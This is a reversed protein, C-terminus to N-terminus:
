RKFPRPHTKLRPNAITHFLIIVEKLHAPEETNEWVNQLYDKPNEVTLTFAQKNHIDKVSNELM